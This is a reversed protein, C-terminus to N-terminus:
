RQTSASLPPTALDSLRFAYAGTVQGPANVTLLYAGAPLALVPNTVATSDSASFTRNTVVAGLPGSLSWQISNSNTLSDFYLLTQASLTFSYRDQERGHRALAANRREGADTCLAHRRHDARRQLLLEGHRHRRSCRRRAAHLYRRRQAHAPRLGSQATPRVGDQRISRHAALYRQIVRRERFHARLLVVSGGASFQYFNTSNSPVLSGSVATDPTLGYGRVFRVPPVRLQRYVPGSGAVTLTYNGAPLTLVPNGSMDNADSNTFSRNSVAAGAPGSLSWRLNGNNTLSDFYLQASAALTFIYHDQQGATTLNGNVTSDLTLPTGSFIPPVNGQFQVNFSYTGTGTDTIGGEVLLYYSGTAALTLPGENTHLGANFLVNGYPDILKWAADPAGSGGLRMFAFQDGANAPFQYLNTSNAPNLTGSVPTGPTLSTAASLNSLRFAYAGTTQGTASVTLTCNGAPLALAPNNPGFIGDSSAFSSNNVAAGSPGSLSWQLASNNTLSDFYLLANAALNFTYHDLEGPAALSSAVLGGLTLTQTPDTIPAVNFSYSVTGTDSIAGEVLLTYTGGASLTLRGADNSLLSHFLVNGYPDILDWSAGSASGSLRAFYFSQGTTANVQYLETSNAPALAGTVVSGPTLPM